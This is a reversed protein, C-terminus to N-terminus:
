EHSGPVNTQTVLGLAVEQQARRAFKASGDIKPVCGRQLQKAREAAIRAFQFANQPRTSVAPKDTLKM